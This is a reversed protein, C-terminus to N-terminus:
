IYTFWTFWCTVNTFRNVINFPFFVNMSAYNLFKGVVLAFLYKEVASAQFLQFKFSQTVRCNSGLFMQLITAEEYRLQKWEGKAIEAYIIQPRQKFSFYIDYMGEILELGAFSCLKSILM